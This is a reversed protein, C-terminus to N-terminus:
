ETRLPSGADSLGDSYSTLTPPAASQSHSVPDIGDLSHGWSLGRRM